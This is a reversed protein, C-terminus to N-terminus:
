IGQIQYNFKAKLISQTQFRGIKNILCVDGIFPIRIDKMQSKLILFVIDYDKLRIEVGNEKYLVATIRKVLLNNDNLDKVDNCTEIKNFAHKSFNSDTILFDAADNFINNISKEEIVLVTRVITFPKDFFEITNPNRNKFEVQIITNDKREKFIDFRVLQKTYTNKIQLVFYNEEEYIKVKNEQKSRKDRFRNRYLTKLIDLIQNDIRKVQQAQTMCKKLGKLLTNCFYFTFINEKCEM